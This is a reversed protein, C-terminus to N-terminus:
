SKLCQLLSRAIAEAMLPPVANGLQVWQDSPSGCFVYDDPFSQVRASERISLSRPQVPHIFSNGDKALHSVITRCPRDPRLRNYKDHFADRRYRMLDDRGHTEIADTSNEGPRLLAYLELDRENHFRVTHNYLVPPGGAIRFKDLYRRRSRLHADSVGSWADVGEGAGSERAPLDGIAEELTVPPLADPDDAGGVDRYEPAPRAPFRRTRAAILFYRLRDQPVGFASANLRWIDTRYRGERELIEAALRIFRQDNVRASEMGPVNEMLVLAPRLALAVKMMFTFLYNREDGMVRYSTLKSARSRFGAHSFGQCPPAGILVDPRGRGLLRRLVRVDLQRVDECVLNTDALEPHNLGLTRLAQTDTDVALSLRFGARTFGLSLGGAGSFLDVFRPRDSAVPAASAQERYTGCFKRIICGECLPKQSHCVARGHSVLNVHLSYRLNPPVLDALVVQKQKHDHRDLDLGLERYPRLRALIRGVHTDVPFVARDFAYLMVCYASKLSIEPLQCLFTALQEDSWARAPEMTCSGFTDRIIRLAGFLSQTKKTSLGGSAVLRSVTAPRARLLAFSRQYAQEYTKRSLIIYVLEDVPDTLNGLRPTGYTAALLRAVERLRVIGEDLGERIEAESAGRTAPFEDPESAVRQTARQRWVSVAEPFV